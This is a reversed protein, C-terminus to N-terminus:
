EVTVSKALNKPKDINCERLKACEYSIIQLPIVALLPNFIDSVKPLVIKKDYCSEDINKENTICIVYAGRTKVEKINSITKASIDSDTVIAIVITGNEILSITGHKLEGAAYAESHIYSIEKLKLAGELALAYDTGRGIFFVDQHDKIKQAIPKYDINLLEMMYNPINKVSKLINIIEKKDIMNKMNAINLAILNLMLVQAFYAKTTAVAIEKGADTYLILKTERAISSGKENVIGLTDNGNKKARKIAELTDATEGSQSVAIVLEDKDLFLKNYRFESAINVEVKINAYKEILQKGVLGAHYASGCAVIRIKNYKSFDPMKNILTDIDSLYEKTMKKFVDPQENIEKLMFHDYGNKSISTADYEFEKIQNNKLKQNNYINIKDKTIEGYDGDELVIYKKTKDLIAPVDSAIYNTGNGVGIILPSNKKMIFLSEKYDDCIIGLAYSGKLIKNLNNLCEKIDNHYTSDILACLVESDTDSKFIYGKKILNEKIESYNEIIGNHVITFKGVKFPHANISTPKGHTAWRTHGIGINSEEISVIKKLNELKGSEKIIKIENNSLYAIGASDYGRYELKSLGELLTDISQKKGIYGVIGCM